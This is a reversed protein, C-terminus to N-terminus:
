LVSRKAPNRTMKKELYSSLWLRLPMEVFKAMFLALVVLFTLLFMGTYPAYETVLYDYGYSNSVTEIFHIFPYHLVYLPYSAAGLMLLAPELKSEKLQSAILVTLPFIITVIFIDYIYNYKPISPFLLAAVIILVALWPSIFSIKEILKSRFRYILVGMLIGFISRSLGAAYHAETNGWGANLHGNMVGIYALSCGATLVIMILIKTSLFPAIAAYLFNVIFEYFLSWYPTNLSFMMAGGHRPIFFATLIASYGTWLLLNTESLYGGFIVLVFAICLSVFYIPYLRIFRKKVFDFFSLKKSVLKNEYALAIVFGSLIFFVDVALYTHNKWIMFFDPAHTMVVLLAAIGRIGDLFVFTQRHM